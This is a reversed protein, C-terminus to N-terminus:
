FSCRHATAVLRILCVSGVSRGVGCCVSGGVACWGWGQLAGGGVQLRNVINEEEAEMSQELAVKDKNLRDVAGV